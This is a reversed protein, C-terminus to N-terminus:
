KAKCTKCLKSEPAVKLVELEIDKECKECKGYENKIIKNLATEIDALREEFDYAEALKNSMEEAEDAEEEFQNAREGFDTPKQDEKIRVDLDAVEKELQEKLEQVEKENIM